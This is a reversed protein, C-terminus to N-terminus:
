DKELFFLPMGPMCESSAYLFLVYEVIKDQSQIHFFSIMVMLCM